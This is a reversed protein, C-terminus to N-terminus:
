RSETEEREQTGDRKRERQRIIIIIITLKIASSANAVVLAYDRSIITLSLPSPRRTYPVTFMQMIDQLMQSLHLAWDNLISLVATSSGSVLAKPTNSRITASALLSSTSAWYTMLKEEASDNALSCLPVPLFRVGRKWGKAPFVAAEAFDTLYVDRRRWHLLASHSFAQTYKYRHQQWDIIDTSICLCVCFRECMADHNLSGRLGWVTGVTQVM